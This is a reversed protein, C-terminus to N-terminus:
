VMFTSGRVTLLYRRSIAATVRTLHTHACDSGQASCTGAIIVPSLVIVGAVAIRLHRLIDQYPRISTLVM